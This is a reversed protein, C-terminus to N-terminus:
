LRLRGSANQKLNTLTAPRSLHFFDIAAVRWFKRLARNYIFLTEPLYVGKGYATFDAFFKALTIRPLKEKKRQCIEPLKQLAAQKTHEKTSIWKRRGFEDTMIAYYIGNARKFLAPM